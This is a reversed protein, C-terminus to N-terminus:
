ARKWPKLRTVQWRGTTIRCAGGELWTERGDRVHSVLFDRCTRGGERQPATLPTVTGRAGTSPNEWSASATTGSKGLVEAIATRAVALDAEGPLASAADAAAPDAGSESREGGSGAAHTSGETEKGVPVPAGGRRGGLAGTAGRGHADDNGMLSGLQYSFSCGGALLAAATVLSLSAVRRARRGWPRAVGYSTRGASAVADAPQQDAM